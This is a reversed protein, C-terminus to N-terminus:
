DAAAIKGGAIRIAPRDAAPTGGCSGRGLPVRRRAVAALWAEGPAGAVRIETGGALRAPVAPPRSGVLPVAGAPLGGLADGQAQARLATLRGGEDIAFDFLSRLRAPEGASMTRNVGLTPRGILIPHLVVSSDCPSDGPQGVLTQPMRETPRAVRLRELMFKGTPPRAPDRLFAAEHVPDRATPTDDNLAAVM